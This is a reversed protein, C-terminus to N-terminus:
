RLDESPDNPIYARETMAAARQEKARRVAAARRAELATRHAVGYLWNALMSRPRVGAAKRALVLFTAQFADEAAHDEGLLRRCVGWVMRSHRRALVAFAERDHAEVLRTLLEADGAADDGREVSRHLHRLLGNLRGAEM